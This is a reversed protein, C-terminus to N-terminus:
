VPHFTTTKEEEKGAFVADCYRDWLIEYEEHDLLKMDGPQYIGRARAENVFTWVWDDTESLVAYVHEIGQRAAWFLRTHGDLAIYRDEWPLVQIIVDKWGSLFTEVAALKERDVYFQSPQIRTIPLDIREPEPFCALLSGREDSYRIIHPAHFRFAEILEPFADRNGGRVVARDPGTIELEYPEGDVLYAGHQNLVAQSFRPDRYNDIRRIDM